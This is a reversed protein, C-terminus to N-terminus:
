QQHLLEMRQANTQPEDISEITQKKKQAGKMSTSAAPVEPKKLLAPTAMDVAAKSNHTLRADDDDDSLNEPAEEENEFLQSAPDSFMQGALYM